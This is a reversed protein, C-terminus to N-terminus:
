EEGRMNDIAWDNLCDEGFIEEPSFNETIERILVEDVFEATIQTKDYDAALSTDISYNDSRSFELTLTHTGDQKAM